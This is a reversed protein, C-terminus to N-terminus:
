LVKGTVAKIFLGFDNLHEQLIKYLEEEDVTHYLRVVRNRFKVMQNFLELESKGFYGHKELIRFSDSSTEPTTWRNRAIIHNAVDIMAEINVQLLHKAAEINRFDSAFEQFSYNKLQKLKATNEEIIQVKKRIKEKDVM